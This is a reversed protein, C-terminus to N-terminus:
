KPRIILRHVRTKMEPTYYLVQDDTHVEVRGASAEVEVGHPYQILPLFVELPASIEADLEFEFDFRRSQLDFAMRLPTGPIRAAYPRVVAQLARGGSNIDGPDTQQDRSFISLDEDNWLDGRLNTNDATYNWLTFNVFNAELAQITDDMARVQASFDGTRYARKKNMNYSIGTEGIVTPVAGFLKEGARLHDGIQEAFDARKRRRGFL